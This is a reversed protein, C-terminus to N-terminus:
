LRQTVQGVIGSIDLLILQRGTEGVPCDIIVKQGDPSFRPHTDVRGEGKYQPDLYFDGVPVREGTPIHYLYVHQLRNEDPYTDNLIWENGPLYTCHGNRTMVEPGIVEPVKGEQDEFVYFADGHSAQRTWALIHRDDRWIFHSTYGSPDILRLDKGDLGATYMLTGFGGVDKGKEAKWRHLFIFRQGTPDFLLHNFWHKQTHYDEMWGAQDEFPLPLGMMDALSIILNKEGTQLHCLYIGADDPAIEESNPDPIGAYGYGRRLDNIREFDVSLAHQGDPSLTYVPFPLTDRAGTHINVLHSVYQGDLRDNWIVQDPSGPVFQLMCGQQWGWACSTGLPVWRDGDELDIMGITLTDEAEPSRGEFDVQMGLAYRGTPDVQWKDYYGFWHHGPAQTIPRGPVYLTSLSDGPLSWTHPANEGPDKEEGSQCAFFVPLLILLLLTRYM